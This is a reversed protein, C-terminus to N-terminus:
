QAISPPTAPPSSKRRYAVVNAYGAARLESRFADDEVTRRVGARLADVDFPDVLCAGGGAVERMPSLDSTVVPCGVAQAELIPMGFGEFTSAFVVADARHYARVVDARSVDASARYRVRHRALAAAQEDSVRGIVRLEYDLGELAAALRVLNKNATTGVQLLVPRGASAHPEVPPAFDPHVCCPIVDIREPACGTVDVLAERVAASIVTVRAARAVPMRHWLWDFAAQGLRSRAAWGTDLITLVGGRRPLSAALYTVDGTIHTIPWHVRGAWWLNVLRNTVGSSLRPATAVTVHVSRPLHARVTQFLGEVSHSGTPLPHRMIQLVPLPDGRALAHAAASTPGPAREGHDSRAGLPLGAHVRDAPAAPPM